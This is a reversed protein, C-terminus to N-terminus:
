APAADVDTFERFSSIEGDRIAFVHVAGYGDATGDALEGKGRVIGVVLNDGVEGVAEVELQLSSWAAGLGQFFQGVGDRGTFTGGQPVTTPVTWSVDEALLGIVTPIDGSAFAGYAREVIATNTGMNTSRPDHDTSM